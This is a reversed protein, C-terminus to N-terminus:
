RRASWSLSATRRTYFEGMLGLVVFVLALWATYEWWTNKPNYNIFIFGRAQDITHFLPNWIFMPLWYGPLSNALVMKGSFLMNSRQYISSIIGIVGPMWPKIVYLLLGIAAGSVWSLLLMGYAPVPEEIHIPTWAVHYIFLIIVMSLTQVYLTAVAASVIAITTNMPAHQMMPSSPGEAGVVAAVTKTHTMFLFVGSMLYLLFDGRIAASRTGMFTLMFYFFALFMVAQMINQGLAFFANNHKARVSRVVCHFVVEGLTLARTLASKDTRYQFM